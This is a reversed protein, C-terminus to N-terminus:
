AAPRLISRSPRSEQQQALRAAAAGIAMVDLAGEQRRQAVNAFVRALARRAGRGADTLRAADITLQVLGKEAVARELTRRAANRVWGGFLWRSTCPLECSVPFSWVGFRLQSPQLRPAAKAPGVPHRLAKVGHRSVLDLHANLWEGTTVLTTLRAGRAASEAMSRALKRDLAGRESSESVGDPSIALAVEHCPQLKPLAAGAPSATCWSVSLRHEALTTAVWRCTEDHQVSATLAAGAAPQDLDVSITVVAKTLRAGM